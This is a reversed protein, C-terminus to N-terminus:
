KGLMDKSLFPYIKLINFDHKRMELFYKKEMEHERNAWDLIEEKSYYRGELVKLGLCKKSYNIFNKRSSVLMHWFPFCRCQFPRAEHVSCSNDKLFRCHEDDGSFKFGLSKFRFTKGRAAGPEKWFFSDNIVKLYQKAFKELESKKTINLSQTLRLIDDQYLYIEGEDFGRCCSGCMQCSFEIGNELSKSIKIEISTM